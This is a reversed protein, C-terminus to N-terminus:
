SPALALGVLQYRAEILTAIRKTAVGLKVIMQGAHRIVVGALQIIEYRLRKPRAKGLRKPLAVRKLVSLLNYAIVNLRAWAADAGFRGCPLTGLGLENKSVDHVHEITGAKEHFWSLIRDGKWSLNTTLPWYRYGNTEFLTPQKPKWRVALYRDPRVDMGESLAMAPIYFVEAWQREKDLNKWDKEPLAAIAERMSACLDASIAFGIGDRRLYSLVSAEYCASDARFYREKVTDPLREFSQQILPLNCMGAPVNGDRFEDGIILDTEAWVVYSPQYGRGGKYHFFAEKKTSDIISADHDLTAKSVEKPPLQKAYGNVLDQNVMGLGQLARSEPPIWAAQLTNARKAMLEDDHFAYLFRRAADPSPAHYGLLLPLGADERMREFDDLREGGAVLMLAFSEVMQAETFGRNRQKLAVNRRCSEELGLARFAEAILPLGSFSTLPTKFPEPDIRFPLIGESEGRPARNKQKSMLWSPM